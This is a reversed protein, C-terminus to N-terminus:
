ANGEDAISDTLTEVLDQRHMGWERMDFGEWARRQAAKPDYEVSSKAAFIATARGPETDSRFGYVPWKEGPHANHFFSGWHFQMAASVEDFEERPQFPDFKSARTAKADGFVAALDSTHMAGLGIRRMTTSAYDFRYMWTPATRRHETALMVSPAWFVADAILAAFKRRDDVFDYTELVAEANDPDYVSLARRAARLRSKNTQYLAKAFSAEDANTGIILPVPAQAGSQFVDIPHAPLTHTDVTPMFSTNFQVLEKRNLLMSQGVRVLAEADAERLAELTTQSPLGMDKILKRVWMAAQVRSHVSAVPPSQAIARHFLGRAAPACMLHIVAAGGASEGMITVRGPDGGFGAANDHVWRLALIQDLLAPNAVCDEGLTRYDLYGFVGLRFNVSIYVIDTTKTLYHGQLVKEHSSGTVFTGGHFYVVVPLEEDNDPRVIDLTLCDETGIVNDTWGFFGQMAPPSFASADRVGTWPEVPRPARFRGAGETTAGYPVGRWTRVGTDPDVIGRVRGASTTVVPQDASSM